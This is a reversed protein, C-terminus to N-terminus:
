LLQIFSNLNIIENRQSELYTSHLSNPIVLQLNQAYMEDTQNKSIAPELTILHKLVIRDAESLVQRWRDKATTKVGLMYLQDASFTEDKYAEISPFIFDPRNNRETKAGKSYSIDHIDFITKLHSEFSHGARSKRRNIVTLAFQIFGDVDDGFGQRIRDGVIAREFIRLLDGERDWWEILAHDPDDLVNVNQVTSRAFESFIATSPFTMGFRDLMMDLYDAEHAPASDIGLLELVYKGAIGVDTYDERFDKVAFRDEVEELGFLYMLQREATTESAAVFVMLRDNQDKGLIVLDGINANPVVESDSYYLRFEASRNLNNERVDYWTFQSTNNIIEDADDAFYLIRGDFNRRDTGLIDRFRNIGNFEHQNAFIEVRSLRKAAIGVFHDSLRISM